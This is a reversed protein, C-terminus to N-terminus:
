SLRPTQCNRLKNFMDKFALVRLGAFGVPERHSLRVTLAGRM